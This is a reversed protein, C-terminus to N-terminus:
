KNKLKKGKVNSKNPISRQTEQKVKREIHNNCDQIWPRL